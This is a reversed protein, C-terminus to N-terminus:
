LCSSSPRVVGAELLDGAREEVPFLLALDLDLRHRQDRREARQGADDACLRAMLPEISGALRQQKRGAGPGDGAIEEVFHLVQRVNRVCSAPRMSPRLMAPVATSKGAPKRGGGSSGPLVGPRGAIERRLAHAEADDLVQWGVQHCAQVQLADFARRARGLQEGLARVVGGLGEVDAIGAERDLGGLVDLDAELARLPIEAKVGLGVVGAEVVVDEQLRGANEAALFEGGAADFGLQQLGDDALAIRDEAAGFQGPLPVHGRQPGADEPDVALVVRHARGEGVAAVDRANRRLAEAAAGIQRLSLQNTRM